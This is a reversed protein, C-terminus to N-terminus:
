LHSISLKFGTSSFFSLTASEAVVAGLPSPITLDDNGIALDDSDGSDAGKWPLWGVCDRASGSGSAAATVDAGTALGTATLNGLGKEPAHSGVGSM